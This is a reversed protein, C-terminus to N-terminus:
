MSSKMSRMMTWRLKLYIKDFTLQTLLLQEGVFALKGHAPAELRVRKAKASEGDVDRGTSESRARKRSPEGGQGVTARVPVTKAARARTLPGRQEVTEEDSSLVIAM